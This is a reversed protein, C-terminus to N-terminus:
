EKWVSKKKGKLDYEVSGSHRADTVGVHWRVDYQNFDPDGRKLTLVTVKGDPMKLRTKADEIMTTIITFDISDLPFMDADLSAQTYDGSLKVPEPPKLKGDRYSYSDLNEKRNPDQIFLTASDRYLTLEDVMVRGKVAKRLQATLDSADVFLDVAPAKEPAAVARAAPALAALALFWCTLRRSM